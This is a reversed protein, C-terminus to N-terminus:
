QEVQILPQHFIIFRYIFFNVCAILAGAIIQALIYWVVFWDVLVYLMLTNIILSSVSVVLYIVLQKTLLERNHNEFTWFKQLTFSVGFALIFSVVGSALYYWGFIDTFLYLFGINVAAATCGSILYKALRIRHKLFIGIAREM